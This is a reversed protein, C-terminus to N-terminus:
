IKKIDLIDEVEYFEGSDDLHIPPPMYRKREASDMTKHASLLSIHFVNHLRSMTLPLKLKYAVPNIKKIIQFPGIKKWDLKSCPRTTKINKRNLYVFDGVKFNENRRKRDVFYKTVESAAKLEGTISDLNDRISHVYDEVAPSSVPLLETSGDMVPEFGYNACFPSMRISSHFRSNYCLEAKSLNTLWNQQQQDSYM